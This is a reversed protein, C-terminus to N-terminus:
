LIFGYMGGYMLFIIIQIIKLINLLEIQNLKFRVRCKYFQNIILVILFKINVEVDGVFIILDVDLLFYVGNVKILIIIISFWLLYVIRGQFNSLIILMFKVKWIFRVIIVYM